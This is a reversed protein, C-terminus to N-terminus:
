WPSVWRGLIKYAAQMPDRAIRVAAGQDGGFNEFQANMVGNPANRRNWLDAAVELVARDVIVEPANSPVYGGLDDAKVNYRDVLAQAEALCGAIMDGQEGESAGVYSTLKSATVSM